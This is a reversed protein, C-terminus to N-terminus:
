GAIARTGTLTICLSKVTQAPTAPFHTNGVWVLAKQLLGARIYLRFLYPSGPFRSKLGGYDPRLLGSMSDFRLNLYNTRILRRFFLTDQALKQGAVRLLSTKNRSM